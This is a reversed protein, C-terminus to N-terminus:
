PRAPAYGVTELYRSLLGNALQFFLSYDGNTLDPSILYQGNLLLSPTTDPQYHTFRKRAAILANMTTSGNWAKEFAAGDIGADEAIRKYTEFANPDQQSLQLTSYAGSMFHAIRTPGAAKAAYYGRAMTIYNDGSPIIPIPEFDVDKPLSLGWQWFYLDNQMCFTCDFGFFYLIKRKDEPERPSREPITPKQIEIAAMDHNQDAYGGMGFPDAAVSSSLAVSFLVFTFLLTRRLRETM